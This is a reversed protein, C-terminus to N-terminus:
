AHDAGEFNNAHTDLAQAIESILEVAKVFGPRIEQFRAEFTNSAHGEWEGKLQSLLSDMRSLVDEVAQGQQRFNSARERLLGPDVRIAM